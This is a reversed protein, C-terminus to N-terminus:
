FCSRLLFCSFHFCILNSILNLEALTSNKHGCRLAALRVSTSELTNVKTGGGAADLEHGPSISGGAIVPFLLILSNVHGTVIERWKGKLITAETVEDMDNVQIKQLIGM